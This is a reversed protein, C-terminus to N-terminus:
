GGTQKRKKWHFVCQNGGDLINESSELDLEPNYGELMHHDVECYMRGLEGEDMEKWIQAFPCHSVVGEARWGQLDLDMDFGAEALSSDFNGYYNDMNLPLDKSQVTKRINRGRELSFERLGARIADKGENGFRNEVERAIHIYLKAFHTALQKLNTDM